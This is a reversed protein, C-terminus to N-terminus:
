IRVLKLINLVNKAALQKAEQKSSASGTRRISDLRCEIRFTPAHSQGFSAIVKFIPKHFNKQVCLNLLETVSDGTQHYSGSDDDSSDSTDMSNLKALLNKAADHKASNKIMGGGIAKKNFAQCQMWFKFGLSKFNPPLLVDDIETYVPKEVKKQSCLENLITIPTKDM